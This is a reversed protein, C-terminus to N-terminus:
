WELGGKGGMHTRLTLFQMSTKRANLNGVLLIEGDGSLKMTEQELDEM